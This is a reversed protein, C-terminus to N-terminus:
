ELRASRKNFSLARQLRQHLDYQAEFRRGPHGRHDRGFHLSRDPRIRHRHRWIRGEHFSRLDEYTPSRSGSHSEANQDPQRQDAKRHWRPGYALDTAEINFIAIFGAYIARFRSTTLFEDRAIRGPSTLSQGPVARHKSNM